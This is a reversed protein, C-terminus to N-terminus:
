ARRRHRGSLSRGLPRTRVQQASRKDLRECHLCFRIPDPTVIRPVDNLDTGKETVPVVVGCATTKSAPDAVVHQKSLKREGKPYTTIWEVIPM